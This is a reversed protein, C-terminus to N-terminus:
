RREAEIRLRRLQEPIGDPGLTHLQGVAVFATGETRLLDEIKRAWWLNRQRQMVQYLDPRSRMRDLSRMPPNRGEIWGFTEDNENLGAKYDDLYDLLWELYQSQARDSIGAMFTVFAERTPFEYGITKGSSRAMRELTGDVPVQDYAMKRNAYFGSAITYYARWPRFGEVSDPSIGLETLYALTRQRAPPELADFLTRGSEHALKEMRAAAARQASEDQPPAASDPGATELWLQSSAQFAERVGPTLWSTDRSEGFGLIFVTAEGRRVVWFPPGGPEAPRAQLTPGHWLGLGCLVPWLAARM